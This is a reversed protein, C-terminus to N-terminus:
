FGQKRYKTSFLTDCWKDKISQKYDTFIYSHVILGRYDKLRKKLKPKQLETSIIDYVVGNVLAIFAKFYLKCTHWVKLVM